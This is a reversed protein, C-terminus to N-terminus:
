GSNVGRNHIGNRESGFPRFIEYRDAFGSHSVRKNWRLSFKLRNRHTEPSETSKPLNRRFWLIPWCANQAKGRLFFFWQWQIKWLPSSFSLAFLFSFFLFSSPSSPMFCLRHSLSFVFSSSSSFSSFLSQLSCRLWQLNILRQFKRFSFFFFFSHDPSILLVYHLGHSTLPNPFPFLKTFPFNKSTAEIYNGM